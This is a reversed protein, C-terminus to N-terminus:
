LFVLRTELEATHRLPHRSGQPCRGQSVQRLLSDARAIHLCQPTRGHEGSGAGPWDPLAQRDGTSVLLKTSVFGCSLGTWHVWYLVVKTQVTYDYFIGNFNLLFYLSVRLLLYFELTWMKWFNSILHVICFTHRQWDRAQKLRSHQHNALTPDAMTALRSPVLVM